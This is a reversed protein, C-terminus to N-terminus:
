PGSPLERDIASLHEMVLQLRFATTDRLKQGCSEAAASVLRLAESLHEQLNPDPAQPIRVGDGAHRLTPCVSPDGAALHQATRVTKAFPEIQQRYTQAWSRIQQSAMAAGQIQRERMTKDQRERKMKIELEESARREVVLAEKDEEEQVKLRKKEEERAQDDLVLQHAEAAEAEVRSERQHTLQTEAAMEGLKEKVAIRVTLARDKTLSMQDSPSLHLAGTLKARDDRIAKQVRDRDSALVKLDDLTAPHAAAACIHSQREQWDVLLNRIETQEGGVPRIAKEAFPLGSEMEAAAAAGTTKLYAQAAAEPTVAAPSGAPAPATGAAQKYAEVVGDVLSDCATQNADLMAFATKDAASSGGGCAALLALGTLGTLLSLITARKM